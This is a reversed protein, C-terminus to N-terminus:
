MHTQLVLVGGSGKAVTGRNQFSVRTYESYTGLKNVVPLYIERTVVYAFGILCFEGCHTNKPRPSMAGFSPPGSLALMSERTTSRAAVLKQKLSLYQFDSVAM